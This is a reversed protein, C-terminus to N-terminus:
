NDGSDGESAKKMGSKVPDFGEPFMTEDNYLAGTLYAGTLNAETLNAGTLNAKTLYAWTLNVGTLDAGILDAGSLNADRLKARTLNAETLYAWGLDARTLDARTLDAGTLDVDTLIAGRLDCGVGTEAILKQTKEFSWIYDKYNLENCSLDALAKGNLSLCIFLPLISMKILSKM